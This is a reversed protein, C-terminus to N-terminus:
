PDGKAAPAAGADAVPEGMLAAAAKKVFSSPRPKGLRETLAPTAAPGVAGLVAMAAEEANAERDVYDLLAPVVPAARPGLEFLVRLDTPACRVPPGQYQAFMPDDPAPPPDDARLQHRVAAFVVELDGGLAILTRAAQAHEDCRAATQKPSPRDDGHPDALSALVVQVSRTAAAAKPGMRELLSLATSADATNLMAILGPLVAEDGLRVLTEVAALRTAHDADKKSTQLLLAHNAPDAWTAPDIARLADAKRPYRRDNLAALLVQDTESRTRPTTSGLRVLALGADAAAEVQAHDHLVRELAAVVPPATSGLEGLVFLLRAVPPKAEADRAPDLAAVLAPAALPGIDLLAAEVMAPQKAHVAVLAPVADVSAPGMKGLAWVALVLAEKDALTAVIAPVTAAVPPGVRVVIELANLRVRLSKDGLAAGLAPAALAGLDIMQRFVSSRDALTHLRAITGGLDAPAVSPLRRVRGGEADADCAKVVSPAVVSGARDIVQWANEDWQPEHKLGKGQGWSPGDRPSENEAVEFLRALALEEVRPVSAASDVSPERSGVKRLTEQQWRREEDRARPDFSGGALFYVGRPERGLLLVRSRKVRAQGCAFPRAAAFPGAIAAKGKDDVYHWGREDRVAALGESFPDADLFDHAIVVKGSPDIFGWRGKKVAALGDSFSEAWEFTAPIVFSGKADVFGWGGDAEARTPAGVVVAAVPGGEVM